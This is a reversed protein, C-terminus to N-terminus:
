VVPMALESQGWESWSGDYVLSDVGTLDLAFSIICATVGSGCSTIIRESGSLGTGTFIEKLEDVSKFKGSRDLLLTYPVNLAGPMHGSRLGAVPEPDSGNFRGASRADLILVDAADLAEMVVNRDVTLVRRDFPEYVVASVAGAAGSAVEGRWAPLGGDLLAVNPHGITKLALWVRAASFMGLQDYIVVRTNRAIGREGAAQAIVHPEPMMHKLPSTTDAIVDINWRLAGPIHAKEYEEHANKGMTSLYYTADLVVVDELNEQLWGVSVLSNMKIVMEGSEEARLM